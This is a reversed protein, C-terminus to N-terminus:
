LEKISRYMNNYIIKVLRKQSLTLERNTELAQLIKNTEKIYKKRFTPNAKAMDSTNAARDALKIVLGWSSMNLMKNILYDTKGLRKVEKPDSSLQQVLDAVLEGFEDKINEYTMNTDEITDHLYAASVLEEMKKSTKVKKLLEAVDIPHQSYPIKNGQEDRGKRYQGEHAKIATEKAKTKMAELYYDIM